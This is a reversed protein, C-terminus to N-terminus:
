EEPVGLERLNIVFPDLWKRSAHRLGAEFFRVSARPTNAYLDNLAVQSKETEGLKAHSIACLIYSLPSRYGREQARILYDRCEAFDEIQHLACARLHHFRGRNMDLPDMAIVKDLPEIALHSNGQHVYAQALSFHGGFHNPNIGIARKSLEVAEAHRGRSIYVRALAWLTDADTPDLRYAMEAEPLAAETFKDLEGPDWLQALSTRCRALLAYARAYNRDLDIVQELLRIAERLGGEDQSISSSNAKQFLTWTGVDSPPVTAAIEYESWDIAPVLQAALSNTIEDQIQFIDDLERDFRKSWLSSSTRADVLQASVRIRPGAKRVSGEVVYQVDLDKVVQAASTSKGKYTFMTGRSIVFLSRFKSIADIVDDTMGDAFFEADSDASLNQFPLVAISPQSSRSTATQAGSLGAGAPETSDGAQPAEPWLWVRVPQDINKLSKDGADTFTMATKGQLYEYTGSSVAIGGVPAVEQLRAAINVGDGYLDSGDVVVDGLNIGIRLQIHVEEAEVSSPRKNTANQITEAANAADVVSGFEALMGDGMLKFVRGRHARVSPQVVENWLAKMAALTGTEDARMLRSYGVVDAALIAALKRQM